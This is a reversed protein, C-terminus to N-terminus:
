GDVIVGHASLRFKPNKAGKSPTYLASKILGALKKKGADRVPFFAVYVTPAVDGGGDLGAEEPPLHVPREDLHEDLRALVSDHKERSLPSAPDFPMVFVPGAFRSAGPIDSAATLRTLVDRWGEPVAPEPSELSLVSLDGRWLATYLRGQTSVLENEVKEMNEFVDVRVESEWNSGFNSGGGSSAAATLKDPHRVRLHQRIHTCAESWDPGYAERTDYLTDGREFRCQDVADHFAWPVAWQFRDFYEM